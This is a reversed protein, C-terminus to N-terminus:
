RKKREHHNDGQKALAARAPRAGTFNGSNGDLPGGIHWNEPVAYFELAERLADREAVVRRIAADWDNRYQGRDAVSLVSAFHKERDRLVDQEAEAQRARGETSNLATLLGLVAERVDTAPSRRSNAWRIAARATRQEAASMEGMHLKLAQATMDPDLADPVTVGKCARLMAAADLPLQDMAYDTLKVAMAELEHDSPHTM